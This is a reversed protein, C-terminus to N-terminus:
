GHDGPKLYETQDDVEGAAINMYKYYAKNNPVQFIENFTEMTHELGRINQGNQGFKKGKSNNAPKNYDIFM